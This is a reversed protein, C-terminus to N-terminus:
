PHPKNRLLPRDHADILNKWNALLKGLAAQEKPTTTVVAPAEAEPAGKLGAGALTHAVVRMGERDPDTEDLFRPLTRPENEILWLIRHLVDIVPAPKTPDPTLGLKPDDGRETFDRLRYKDKKKQVLAKAGSSLGNDLEVDLGYTFVIAEGAALEATKYTFRWLVYFRSASDVATIRTDSVGLIKGLLVDHVLGEVEQLFTTAPVEEGNAYEVRAHQTFARLGAGVAAIILDAGMIRMKWLTEVREHVIQELEPRVQQEYSAVGTGNRKRGVLFISSALAAADMAVMRAKRETRLPWAELVIFGANRISDVLTSWALTTKHAYVVVLQGAKKLVRSTERLAALMMEEYQATAKAMDGGHRSALATIEAKKPTLDAAFHEPYQSGLARKLWVYFFDSVDAYPINDYYPPDTIVADMVADAWPLSLASGRQCDAPRQISPAIQDIVAVTRKLRDAANGSANGVPNLEAYDWVM